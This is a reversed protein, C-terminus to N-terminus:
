RKNQDSSRTLVRWRASLYVKPASVRLECQGDCPCETVLLRDFIYPESHQANLLLGKREIERRM